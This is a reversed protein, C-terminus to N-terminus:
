SKRRIIVIFVFLSAIFGLLWFEIGQTTPFGREATEDRALMDADLQPSSVPVPIARAPSAQSSIIPGITGNTAGLFSPGYGAVPPPAVPMPALQAIPEGTNRDLYATDKNTDLDGNEGSNTTAIAQSKEQDQTSVAASSLSNLQSRVKNFAQEQTSACGSLLSVPLLWFAKRLSAAALSASIAASSLDFNEIARSTPTPVVNIDTVVASSIPTILHYRGALVHAQSILASNNSQLDKLIQNYAYLQALSSSTDHANGLDPAASTTVEYEPKTEDSRDWAKYLSNLDESMSGIRTVRVLNKNDENDKLLEDPGASVQLDYLLPISSVRQLQPKIADSSVTSLPQAAHIWLVAGGPTAGVPFAGIPTAGALSPSGTVDASQLAKILEPGDNHGGVCQFKELVALASAYDPAGTHFHSLVTTDDGVLVINADLVTPLGKLGQVIESKYDQMAASGDVLVTLREPKLYHQPRIRREVISGNGAFTDSCFAVHINTHRDCKLISAFRGLQASEVQATVHVRKDATSRTVSSTTGSLSITGTSELDIHDAVDFQFNREEFTPLVLVANQKEDLTLPATISLKVMMTSNPQVPFCQVLLQDLGCMSVLLPDKKHEAIAQRYYARAESRVMVTAEREQGNVTLTAKTVVAGPPLLIRARAERDIASVNKFTFAWNLDAIAADSDVKGSIASDSVSLGRAVGSVAEGAIDADLDFEDQVKANVGAIDTVNGAHQMTARASSPIPVTNFPKGTVYYFITRAQDVTVPHASEYLSGLIDTARGSREYCARLMVEQSGYQRLWEIGQKATAPDAALSLNMRTLTSPLEVAVVMCLVILHGIHEVQHPNFYTNKNTALKCVSKGSLWTCPIALLPALGLLGFGFFLSFLCSMPTLPLFMLGYLCGIGLAM